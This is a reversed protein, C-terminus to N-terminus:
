EIKDECFQRSKKTMAKQFTIVKKATTEEGSWDEGRGKDLTRELHDTVFFLKMRTDGRSPTV